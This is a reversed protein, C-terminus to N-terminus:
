EDTRRSPTTTMTWETQFAGDNLQVKVQSPQNSKAVIRASQVAAEKSPYTGLVLGGDKTVKWGGESPSVFYTKRTMPRDPPGEPDNTELFHGPRM